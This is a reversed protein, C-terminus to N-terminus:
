HTISLPFSLPITIADPKETIIKSLNKPELKFVEYDINDNRFNLIKNELKIFPSVLQFNTGAKKEGEVLDSVSNLSQANIGNNLFLTFSVVIFLLYKGHIM